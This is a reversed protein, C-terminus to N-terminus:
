DESLLSYITDKSVMYLDRDEMEDFSNFSIAEYKERQQNLQRIDVKDNFFDPISLSDSDSVTSEEKSIGKLTNSILLKSELFNLCMLSHISPVQPLLLKKPQYVKFLRKKAKKKKAKQTSRITHFLMKVKKM